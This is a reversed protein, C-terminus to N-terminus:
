IRRNVSNIAQTTYVYNKSNRLQKDLCYSFCIISICGFIKFKDDNLLM